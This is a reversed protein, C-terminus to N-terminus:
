KNEAPEESPIVFRHFRRFAKSLDDFLSYAVPTILLTIVLSLTQGGIIVVAMTARTASGPGRGLAVPLMAAVLVLTTMLIPRLRTKNAELIAAHRELGRARLTNTYDVQLIANKKVIGFLMFIGMISFITLAQGTLVLSLVAFPISLPLSLMITVPHLFSEFQSALIMYMFIFSLVFAVLFGKLMRGMEKAKGETAAQYEPPMHFTKVIREAAKLADGLPIGELNAQVTVRRQRNYREIQTPGNEEVLSAVNDLRVFGGKMSPLTLGGIVEANSRFSRDVRVRVPYLNDGEKYKTVDEEGSIMARLAAAIDQVRVGLDQARNRDIRVQLEPKKNTISTDVDVMGHIKSLENKLRDAYSQLQKLDPGSLIYNFDLDKGGKFGGSPTVSCRLGTYKSLTLRVLTMIRSQVPRRRYDTLRVYIKGENVGSGQEEGVSTLLSRVGPLRRLDSEIQKLIDDTTKLSAGEPATINVDFEGTDDNPIFDAGVFRGVVFLSLVIGVAGAVVTKRHHLAWEVMRGYHEKLFDNFGDVWAQLRNRSGHHVHLFRSCLMPTLTFAVFLSVLIAFAVTLGYSKLFRGVIGYMYALPLFIIVLSLTTALVAMGIEGTAESAARMASIKKEEMYRFINELVVIADDIVVGVSLTLALLTMNDLTFGMLNMLTFTAIISTPIAVSAIITSRFDGMFLLVALSALLAGLVLHEKVTDVSSVIFASQDRIVESTVGPPLSTKLEDLREKVARIVEVTNTGSQKQVVLSVTSKGDLRALTRAEEETDEVRAVDRIRIPVGDKNAVVLENFVEPSPVRGLTRLVLERRDQDVRGGPMEINQQQLAQQVQYISIGYAMMAAPNVVVHIERERGGVMTIKGVGSVTELVEKIRKKAIETIERLPYVGKVAISMVPMAGADFKQVIPPDTGEPLDKLVRNVADRVEQAAVDSNKELVFQVMIQSFGEYSVSNLQDIGSITNIAEEIPKTVSTEIEEPSAGALTTNVMAFPFDVNPYLDLGLRAYSFLGLVVLALVMMTTFVPRKICVDVIKM